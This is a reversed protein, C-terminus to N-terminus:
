LSTITRVVTAASTFTMAAGGPLFVYRLGTPHNSRMSCTLIIKEGPYLFAFIFFNKIKGPNSTSSM